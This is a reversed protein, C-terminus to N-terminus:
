SRLEIKLPAPLDKEVTEIGSKECGSFFLIVFLLSTSVNKISNMDKFNEPYYLNLHSKSYFAAYPMTLFVYFM